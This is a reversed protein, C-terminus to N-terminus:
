WACCIDAVSVERDGHPGAFQLQRVCENLPVM